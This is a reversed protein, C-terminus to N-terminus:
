HSSTALQFLAPLIIIPYQSSTWPEIIFPLGTYSLWYLSQSIATRVHNLCLYLPTARNTYYGSVTNFSRWYNPPWKIGRTRCTFLVVCVFLLYKRIIYKVGGLQGVNLASVNRLSHRIYIFNVALLFVARCNRSYYRVAHRLTIDYNRASYTLEGLYGLFRQGVFSLAPRVYIAACDSRWFM